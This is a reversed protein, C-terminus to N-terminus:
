KSPGARHQGLGSPQSPLAWKVGSSFGSEDAGREGPVTHERLAPTFHSSVDCGEPRPCCLAPGLLHAFIHPPSHRTRM